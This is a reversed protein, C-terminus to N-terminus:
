LYKVVKMPFKATITEGDVVATAIVEFNGIAKGKVKGSSNVTAINEDSTSWNIEPQTELGDVVASVQTTQWLGVNMSRSSIVLKHESVANSAIVTLALIMISFLVFTMKKVISKM